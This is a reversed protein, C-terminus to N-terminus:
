QDSLKKIDIELAVWALMACKIRMVFKSVGYFAIADELLDANDVDSGDRTQLMARFVDVLKQAAAPTPKQKNILQALVSAAAMSISCGAGRWKLEVIQDTKKDYAIDLTIEDGCSPNLEHHSATILEDTVCSLESKGHPRKSHDLIIEQYLSDLGATM